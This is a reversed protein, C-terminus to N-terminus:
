RRFHFGQFVRKLEPYKEVQRSEFSKMGWTMTGGIPSYELVTGGNSSIVEVAYAPSRTWAQDQWWYSRAWLVILLVCVVGCGVSWAIRLKRFRMPVEAQAEFLASLKM